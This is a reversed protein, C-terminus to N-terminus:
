GGLWERLTRVILAIAALGFVFSGSAFLVTGLTKLALEAATLPAREIEHRDVPWRFDGRTLRRNTFTVNRWWAVAVAGLVVSIGAVVLGQIIM